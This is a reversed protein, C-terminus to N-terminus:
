CLRGRRLGPIARAQDAESRHESRSLNRLAAQEAADAMLKSKGPM